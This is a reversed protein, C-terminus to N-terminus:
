TWSLGQGAMLVQDLDRDDQRELLRQEELLSVLAERQQVVQLMEQLLVHEEQLQEEGKQQDSDCGSCVCDCVPVPVPYLVLDLDLDHGSVTWLCGTESSRSCGVRDTRWSWSGLM